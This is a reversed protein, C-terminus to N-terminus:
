KSLPLTGGPALEVIGEATRIWVSTDGSNHATSDSFSVRLAARLYDAVQINQAYWIDERHGLRECITRMRTWGEEDLFHSHGWLYLLALREEKWNLLMDAFRLGDWDNTTAAWQMLGDPLNAPIELSGSDNTTRAYRIGEQQAIDIVRYDYAGSGTGGFPYAMGHIPHGLLEALATNCDRIERRISSTDGQALWPHSVSHNAVEHGAYLRALEDRTVFDPTDLFSLALNFTGVIGHENFLRVMREDAAPGDDYSMILAKSKGGPWSFRTPDLSRVPVQPVGNVRICRSVDLTEAASDMVCAADLLVENVMSRALRLRFANTERDYSGALVSAGSEADVFACTANADLPMMTWELGLPKLVINEVDFSVAGAEVRSVLPDIRDQTLNIALRLDRGELDPPLHIVTIRASCVKPPLHQVEGNVLLSEQEMDLELLPAQTMTSRADILVLNVTDAKLTVRFNNDNSGYNGTVCRTWTGPEVLAFGLNAGAPADQWAADLPQLDLDHFSFELEGQQVTARHASNDWENLTGTLALTRGEFETPLHIM